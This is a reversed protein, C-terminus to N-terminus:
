KLFVCLKSIVCVNRLFTDSNDTSSSFGGIYLIYGDPLLITSFCCISLPASAIQQWSLQNNNTDFIWMDNLLENADNSGGFYYIKGTPSNAVGNQIRHVPSTTGAIFPNEWKDSNISYQYVLSKNDSIMLCGFLYIMNNTTATKCWANPTLGKDNLQKYQLTDMNKTSFPISLDLYFFDSQSKGLRNFGGIIYWKSGILISAHRFSSQPNYMTYILSVKYLLMFILFYNHFKIM